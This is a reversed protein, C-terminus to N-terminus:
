CRKRTKWLTFSKWRDREKAPRVFDGLCGSRPGIKYILRDERWVEVAQERRAVFRAADIADMDNHSQAFLLLSVNGRNDSVRIEYSHM